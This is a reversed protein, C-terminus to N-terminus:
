SLADMRPIQKPMCHRAANKPGPDDSSKDGAVALVRIDKEPFPKLEKLVEGLAETGGSIM